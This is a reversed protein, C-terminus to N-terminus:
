QPDSRRAEALLQSESPDMQFERGAMESAIHDPFMAAIDQLYHALRPFKVAVVKTNAGSGEVTLLAPDGGSSLDRANPGTSYTGCGIYVYLHQHSRDAGFVHTTCLLM